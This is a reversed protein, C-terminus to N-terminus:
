ILIIFLYNNQFYDMQVSWVWVLWCSFLSRAVIPFQLKFDSSSPLVEDQLDSMENRLGGHNQRPRSPRVENLNLM